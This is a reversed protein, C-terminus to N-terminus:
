LQPWIGFAEMNRWVVVIDKKAFITKVMNECINKEYHMVDLIHRM